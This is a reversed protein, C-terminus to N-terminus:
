PVERSLDDVGDKPTQLRGSGTPDAKHRECFLFNLLIPFRVRAPMKQIPELNKCVVISLM